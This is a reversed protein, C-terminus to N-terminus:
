FSVAVGFNWTRAIYSSGTDTTEPDWGQPYRDISFPDSVSAFVRLSNLKLKKTINPQFSYYFALM